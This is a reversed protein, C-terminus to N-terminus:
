ANVWPFHVLSVPVGQYHTCYLSLSRIMIQRVSSFGYVARFNLVIEGSQGNAFGQLKRRFTSAYASLVLAFCYTHMSVLLPRNIALIEM